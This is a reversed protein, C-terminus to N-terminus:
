LGVQKKLARLKEDHDKRLREFEERLFKTVEASTSRDYAQQLKKALEEALDKARNVPATETTRVM